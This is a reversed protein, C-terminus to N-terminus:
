IRLGDLHNIKSLTDSQVQFVVNPVGYYIIICFRSHYKKQINKEKNLYGFLTKELYCEVIVAVNHVQLQQQLQNLQGRMRRLETEKQQVVNDKEQITEDKEQVIENSEQIIRQQSEELMSIENQTNLAAHM